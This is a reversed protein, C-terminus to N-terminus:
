LTPLSLVKVSLRATGTSRAHGSGALLRHAQAWGESQRENIADKGRQENSELASAPRGYHIQPIIGLSSELGRDRDRVIQRDRDTKTQRQRQM